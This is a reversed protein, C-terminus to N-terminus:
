APLFGHHQRDALMYAVHRLGTTALLVTMLVARATVFSRGLIQFGAPGQWGAVQFSTRVSMSAPALARARGIGKSKFGAGDSTWASTSALIADEEFSRPMQLEMVRVAACPGRASPRFVSWM